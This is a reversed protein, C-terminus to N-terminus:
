ASRARTSSCSGTAWATGGAALRQRPAPAAARRAAGLERHGHPQRGCAGAISRRAFDDTISVVANARRLLARELARLGRGDGQRGRGGAEPGRPEDGRQLPGAALVGVPVRQLRCWSAAVAKAVLPVNSALIVDPKFADAERSFRGRLRGGASGASRRTGPSRSAREAPRRGVLERARRPRPRGPREHLGRLLRSPGHAGCALARSLDVPFPHGAFDHVLIRLRQQPRPRSRRAATADAVDAM